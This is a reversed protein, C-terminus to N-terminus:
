KVLLMKKTKNFGDTKLTYLYTGSPMGEANWVVSHDGADYVDNQLETVKQGVINYVVLNVHTDNALSYPITTISNFPNPYNQFLSFIMPTSQFEFAGIDWTGTRINGAKDINFPNGLDSKGADIASVGSKLKYDDTLPNGTGEVANDGLTYSTCDFYANYDYVIAGSTFVVNNMKPYSCNYFLNNYAYSKDNEVDDINGVFVAGYGGITVNVFTNHHFNSSLWVNDDGVECSAYGGTLVGGIALNNYVQWRENGGAHMGVLYVTSNVFTNNRLIIDDCDSGPSIQQGHEQASSWNGDFYNNEITCDHWYRIIMKSSGNAMYNNSITIDNAILDVNRPVGYICVQTYNYDEGPTIMATHSITIHDVQNENYGYGPCGMLFVRSEPNNYTVKFGYSTSDSGSGVVGDWIYYGRIFNIVGDFVAQGDGYSSDWGIDTGHDAETAKKITIYLEGSESDRFIIDQYNGDAIYYVGGRHLNNWSFRRNYEDRARAPLDTYANEWDTGDNNGNAGTRIYYNEACVESVMGFNIVLTTILVVFIKYIFRYYIM